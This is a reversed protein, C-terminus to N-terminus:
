EERVHGLANSCYASDESQCRYNCIFLALNDIMKPVLINVVCLNISTSARQATTGTCVHAPIHFM